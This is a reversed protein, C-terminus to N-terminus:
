LTEDCLLDGYEDYVMDDSDFLPSENMFHKDMESNKTFKENCLLLADQPPEYRYTVDQICSLFSDKHYKEIYSIILGNPTTDLVNVVECHDGHSYNTLSNGLALLSYFATINNTSIPMQIMIFSQGNQTDYSLLCENYFMNIRSDQSEDYTVVEAKGFTYDYGDHRITKNKFANMFAIISKPVLGRPETPVFGYARRQAPFFQATAEINITYSMYADTIMSCDFYYRTRMYEKLEEGFEIDLNLENLDLMITVLNDNSTTGQVVAIISPIDIISSPVILICMCSNKLIRKINYMDRSLRNKITYDYMDKSIESSPVLNDNDDVLIGHIPFDFNSKIGNLMAMFGGELPRNDCSTLLLM